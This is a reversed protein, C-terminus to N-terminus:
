EPKTLNKFKHLYVSVKAESLRYRASVGSVKDNISLCEHFSPCISCYDGSCKRSILEDVKMYMVDGIPSTQCTARRLVGPEVEVLQGSRM